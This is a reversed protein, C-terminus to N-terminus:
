EQKHSNPAVYPFPGHVFQLGDTDPLTQLRTQFTEQSKVSPLMNLINETKVDKLKNEVNSVLDKTVDNVKFAFYKEQDIELALDTATLDQYILATDAEHDLIDIDGVEQINVKDGCQKIEGEYDKNVCDKMVGVDDLKKNLKKSWFEPIFVGLKKTNKTAVSM